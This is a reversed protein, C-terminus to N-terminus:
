KQENLDILAGQELRVAPDDPDIEMAMAQKFPKDGICWGRSMRRNLVEAENPDAAAKMRLHLLYRKWGNPTDSFADSYDM